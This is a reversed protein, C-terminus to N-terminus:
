VFQELTKQKIRQEVFHRRLCQDYLIIAFPTVTM